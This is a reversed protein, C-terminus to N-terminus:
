IDTKTVVALVKGSNVVLKAGKLAINSLTVTDGMKINSNELPYKFGNLTINSDELPIFSIHNNVFGSLDAKDDCYLILTNEEEILMNKYKLFLLLNFLQHDVRGGLACTVTIKGGFKDEAYKLAIEADSLDKEAPFVVTNINEPKNVSDFDGVVVDPIIGANLAHKYGGDACIINDAELSLSKLFNYNNCKGNLIILTNM